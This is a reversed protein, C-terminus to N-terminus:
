ILEFEIDKVTGYLVVQKGSLIDTQHKKLLKKGITRTVYNGIESAGYKTKNQLFDAMLAEDIRVLEAGLDELAEKAFKVIIDVEADESLPEFVMFEQVRRSIEPKGCHKTFADKGMESKEFEDALRYKDMDIPINSTFVWICHNLDLSESNDAMALIGTELASMCAILFNQHAKEIENVLIIQYPNDRIPDLVTKSGHGVYGAPAGLLKQIMHGERFENAEIELIGYPTEYVDTLTDALLRGVTSKGTACPGLFAVVLLKDERKMKNIVIADALADIAADQGFIHRKIPESIDEPWVQNKQDKESRISQLKEKDVVPSKREEQNVPMRQPVQMNQVQLDEENFLFALSHFYEMMDKVSAFRTESKVLLETFPAYDIDTSINSDVMLLYGNEEKKLGISTKDPVCSKPLICNQLVYLKGNSLIDQLDLYEIYPSYVFRKM